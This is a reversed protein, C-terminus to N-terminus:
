RVSAFNRPTCITVASRLNKSPRWPLEHARQVQQISSTGSYPGGGEAAAGRLYRIHGVHLLDFCGNGFVIIDGRGRREDLIPALDYPNAYIKEFSDMSLDPTRM